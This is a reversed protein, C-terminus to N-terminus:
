LREELIKRIMLAVGDEDNTATVWRAASKVAPQANGMAVGFGASKIMEVDNLSDGVAAVAGMELGLRACVERLAAAKSVGHPNIELNCPHSNTVEFEGLEALKGRIHERVEDNEEFFGFKLWQEQSPAKEWNDRNFVGSSASYAWYWSGSELAIERMRRVEDTQLTIRRWVRDADQRIESGNVLVMPTTLGLSQYYPLANQIGRGTALCVHIGARTAEAIWRRNEESIDENSDLLTGDMDLAILRISM